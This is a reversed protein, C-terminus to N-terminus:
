SVISLQALKNAVRRIPLCETRTIVFLKISRESRNNDIELRGDKLFAELNGGSSLTTFDGSRRHREQAAYTLEAKSAMGFFYGFFNSKGM